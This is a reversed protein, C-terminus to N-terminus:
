IETSINGLPYYRIDTIKQLRIPHSLAVYIPMEMNILAHLYDKGDSHNDDQCVVVEVYPFPKGSQIQSQNYVRRQSDYLHPLNLTGMGDSCPLKSISIGSRIYGNRRCWDHISSIIKRSPYNVHCSLSEKHHFESEISKKFIDFAPDHKSHHSLTRDPSVQRHPTPDFLKWEGNVYVEVWAHGSFGQSTNFLGSILRTTYGLRGSVIAHFLM